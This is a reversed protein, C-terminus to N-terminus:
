TAHPRHGLGIAPCYALAYGAAKIQFSIDTDEFCTPDYFEDFGAVRALIRRPVVLGSTALYAVDTRYPASAFRGTMGRNPLDDVITGGGSGKRFWGANWGVAGIERHEALIRLAPDLWGDELAWQDSDLFVLLEGHSERI